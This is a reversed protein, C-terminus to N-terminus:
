LEKDVAKRWKNGYISDNIAKNYTKPKQVKSSTETVSKALEQVPRVLRDASNKGSIGDLDTRLKPDFLLYIRM